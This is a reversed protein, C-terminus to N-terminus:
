NLAFFKSVCLRLPASFHFAFKNKLRWSNTLISIHFVDKWDDKYDSENRNDSSYYNAVDHTLAFERRHRNDTLSNFIGIIMM